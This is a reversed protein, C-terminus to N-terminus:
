IPRDTEGSPVSSCSMAWGPHRPQDLCLLGCDVHLDRRRSLPHVFWGLVAAVIYLVVGVIPRLDQSAFFSAPLNLKM